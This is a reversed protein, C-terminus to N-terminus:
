SELVSFCFCITKGYTFKLLSVSLKSYFYLSITTIGHKRELSMKHQQIPPQTRGSQGCSFKIAYIRFPLSLDWDTCACCVSLFYERQTLIFWLNMLKHDAKEMRKRGFNYMLLFLQFSALPTRTQLLCM